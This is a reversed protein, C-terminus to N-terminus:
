KEEGLLKVLTEEISEAWIGYSKPNLHLLDPMLERSLTGDADLFKKGIDLYFIQKDDALSGAIESAKALKERQPSPKEGRPFAALILVKTKPLKENLKKVIATIGEGIQEATYDSGNSNNTGIMLVAVKPSIGDINGNELRWLVHQTRDGSIGLNVAKRKGYYKEWVEKGAGEWNQTISDGIFVLDVDGQKARENISEHRKVWNGERPVPVVAANKDAKKADQAHLLSLCSFACLAFLPAFRRPALM